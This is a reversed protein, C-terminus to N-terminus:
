SLNFAPPSTSSLPHAPQIADSVRHVHTQALELLQHHVSFGPTSCDMQDYLIPCSQPVPSFQVVPDLGKFVEITYDYPIQNLEYRFPRTTKGVKNLIIRSKTILLEHDSGYGVGHRTKWQSYLAEGSQSWPVHGSKQISWRTTDLYLTMEQTTPFPHKSNSVHERSFIKNAKARIWTTSWPCVQRNEWTDRSKRRKCKM